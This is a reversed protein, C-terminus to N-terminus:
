GPKDAQTSLRNENQRRACTLKAPTDITLIGASNDYNITACSLM